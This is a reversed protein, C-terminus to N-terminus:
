ERPDQRLFAVDPMDGYIDIIRDHAKGWLSKIRKKREAAKEGIDMTKSTNKM